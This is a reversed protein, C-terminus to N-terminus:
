DNSRSRSTVPAGDHWELDGRLHFVVESTDSDFEWSRALYPQPEYNEDNSVLTVFLVHIQHQASEFDTSVLSNMSVPDGRGAVVLTGGYREADPIEPETRTSSTWGPTTEDATRSEDCAGVCCTAIVGLALLIYTPRGGSAPRM